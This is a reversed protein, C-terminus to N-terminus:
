ENVAVAVPPPWVACRVIESVIGAGVNVNTGLGADSLTVAPLETLVVNAVVGTFPKLEAMARVIAPKGVPTVAAKEAVDTLPAAAAELANVRVAALVTAPPM